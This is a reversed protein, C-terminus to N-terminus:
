GPLFFSLIYFLAPFPSPYIGTLSCIPSPSDSTPLSPLPQSGLISFNWVPILSLIEASFLRVHCLLAPKAPDWADRPNMVSQLCQASNCSFCLTSCCLVPYFLMSMFYSGKKVLLSIRSAIFFPWELWLSRLFIIAFISYVVDPSFLLNSFTNTVRM